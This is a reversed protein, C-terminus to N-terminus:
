LGRTSQNNFTIQATATGTEVPCNATITIIASVNRPDQCAIPTPPTPPILAPCPTCCTIPPCTVCLEPDYIARLDLLQKKIFWKQYDDECCTSIGYRRKKVQMFIQEAFECNVKDSYEASCGPTDYGPKVKRQHLLEPAPCALPPNCLECTRFTSVVVVSVAGVCTNSIQVQWCTDCHKLKIVSGLLASLDDGVVISTEVGACDVLLYCVKTCTICDVFSTAISVPTTQTCGTTASISWCIGPYGVIQVTQGIYSALNTNTTITQGRQACNVLLYCPLCSVCNASTTLVTVAIASSCTQATTVQWCGTHGSITIVQGLSSSVNTNTIIVESTVCNTLQYCCGINPIISYCNCVPSPGCTNLACGNTCMYGSNEGTDFSQGIKNQTTFITVNSLQAPTTMTALQAPTTNYIEAGITAVLGQNLGELGIINQGAQLTIPFVHWYNFNFPYGGSISTGVQVITQGNLKFRFCNDGSMAICYTGTTPVTVCVSFGIWEQLPPYDPFPPNTVYVPPATTWLGCSNLRGYYPGGIFMSQGWLPSQVNNTVALPNLGGDLLQTANGTIPYSLASIDQYFNTGSKCWEPYPGSLAGTYTTGNTTPTSTTIKVCNNGSSDPVYGQPCTCGTSSM